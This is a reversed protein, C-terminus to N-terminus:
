LQALIAGIRKGALTAVQPLGAQKVPKASFTFNRQLTLAEISLDLEAPSM